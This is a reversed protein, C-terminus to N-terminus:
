RHHQCTCSLLPTSRIDFSRLLTCLLSIFYGVKVWTCKISLQIQCEIINSVQNYKIKKSKTQACKLVNLKAQDFKFKSLNVQSPKIISLEVQAYKGVTSRM